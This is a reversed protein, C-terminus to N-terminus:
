AWEYKGREGVHYFDAFNIKFVDKGIGSIDIHNKILYQWTGAHSIDGQLLIGEVRGNKLIARKYQNKDECVQIEDGEDKLIRGVCLSVLGFFNITNKICFRDTYETPIGCMNKAAIRGQDAANPWIGSLGTIDGAAYIDPQNTKLHSDVDVGRTCTIGSKELYRVSPRVGAAAIIMDCPYEEGNDLTVKHIRGDAECVAECAKRGLVFRVNADEFLKQYAYAGHADLQVPLIQSAMEVITIKKGLELLGYAADLGVLGSGIILVNDAKDAEKVIAQADSLNRLGYVNSAKRLDGVPPICSDAGNALLLKDFGIREKNDLLVAKDEAGNETKGAPTEESKSGAASGAKVGSCVGVAKVGSKWDVRYKELFNDETFDLGKEDREGAIYKHLMCRSHIQTDASIMLIEADEELGRITKAAEVGAVGAGIIVYKM